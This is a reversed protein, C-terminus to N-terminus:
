QGGQLYKKCNYITIIVQPNKADIGMYQGSIRQVVSLSDDSLVGAKVLADLVATMQNDLDRRKRDPEWFGFVVDCPEMKKPDYDKIKAIQEKFQLIMDAENQKAKDNSTIFRRGTRPNYRIAKSNKKSFVTGYFVLNISDIM